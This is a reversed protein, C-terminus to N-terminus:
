GEVSDLLIRDATYRFSKPALVSERFNGVAIFMIFNEHRVDLLERMRRDQRREFMTNLACAALGVHELALLLSMAFIGGDVYTQHRESTSLFARIDTTVVLLAPPPSYGRMGGQLQLAESILQPDELIRVRYGQRNCISPSKLAIGLAEDLLGRDVVSDEYERVSTRGQFLAAFNKSRNSEKSTKTVRVAGGMRSGCTLAETLHKGFLEDLFRTDFGRSEHLDFYCKLVSLANQYAHGNPDCDADAYSLMAQSLAALATKGFGLRLDSHSLGKELSHAHFILRAELQQCSGHNGPKSYHKRFRLEDSAAALIGEAARKTSSIAALLPAPLLRKITSKM